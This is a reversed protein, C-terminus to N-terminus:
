VVLVNIPWRIPPFPDMQQSWGVWALNVRVLYTNLSVAGMRDRLREILFIARAYTEKGPIDQILSAKLSHPRYVVNAFMISM